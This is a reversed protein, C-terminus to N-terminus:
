WVYILVEGVGAVYRGGTRRSRKAAVALQEGLERRDEGLQRALEGAPGRVPARGRRLRRALVAAEMPHLVVPVPRAQEAEAMPGMHGM